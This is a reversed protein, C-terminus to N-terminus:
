GNIVQGGNKLAEPVQDGPVSYVSGNPARVSVMSVPSTHPTYSPYSSAAQNTAVQGPTGMLAGGGGPAQAANGGLVSPDSIAGMDKMKLYSASPGTTQNMPGPLASQTQAQGGGGGLGMLKGLTTFAQTGTDVYPQRLAIAKDTAETQSKVAKSAQHSQIASSAIGAGASILGVTLLGGFPM